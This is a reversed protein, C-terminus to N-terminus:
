RRSRAANRTQRPRSDRPEEIDYCREIFQVSVSLGDDLAPENERRLGLNITARARAAMKSIVTRGLEYRYNYTVLEMDIDPVTERARRKLANFREWASSDVDVAPAIRHAFRGLRGQRLELREKPKLRRRLEEETIGHHRPVKELGAFVLDAMAEILGAESLGGAEFGDIVHAPANRQLLWSLIATKKQEQRATECAARKEKELTDERGDRLHRKWAEGVVAPNSSRLSPQGEFEVM